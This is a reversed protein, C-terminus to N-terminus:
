RFVPYRRFSPRSLLNEGYYSQTAFYIVAVSARVVVFLKSGNIGASARAYVPFGVHYRTAGRSNLVVMISLGISGIVAAIMSHWWRLGLSTLTAGLNYSSASFTMTLYFAFFNLTTWNRRDPPTPLLDENFYATGEAPADPTQIAKKFAQPSSFAEKVRQVRTAM